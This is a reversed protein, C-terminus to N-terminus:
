NEFYATASYLNNRKCLPSQPDNSYIDNPENVKFNLKLYISLATETIKKM